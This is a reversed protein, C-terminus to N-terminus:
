SRKTLKRKLKKINWELVEKAIEDAKQLAKNAAKGNDQMAAPNNVLSWNLQAHTEEFDENNSYFILAAYMVKIIENQAKIIEPAFEEFYLYNPNDIINKSEEFLKEINNM